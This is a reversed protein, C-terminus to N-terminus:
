MFAIENSPPQLASFFEPISTSFHGAGKATISNRYSALRLLSPALADLFSTGIIAMKLGFAKSREEPIRSPVLDELRTRM